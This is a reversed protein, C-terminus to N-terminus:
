KAKTWDGSSACQVFLRFDPALAEFSWRVESFLFVGVPKSRGLLTRFNAKFWPDRDVM